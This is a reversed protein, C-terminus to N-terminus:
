ENYWPDTVTEAIGNEKNNEEIQKMVVKFHPELLFSSAMVALAPLCFVMLPICLYCGFICAAWILVLLVTTLVHKFIMTFSFAFLMGTSFSFRSLIPFLYITICVIFVMAFVSIWFGLLGSTEGETQQWLLWIGYASALGLVLLIIWCVLGQKLNQKFSHLFNKFAYGRERRVSKMLTYYLATYAPGITVLPICCLLFVINMFIVDTAKNVFTWFANSQDFFKGM